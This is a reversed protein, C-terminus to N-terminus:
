ANAGTKSTPFNLLKNILEDLLKYDSILQELATNYRVPNNSKYSHLDDIKPIHQIYNKYEDIAADDSKTNCSLYYQKQANEIIVYIKVKFFLVYPRDLNDEAVKVYDRYSLFSLDAGYDNEKSLNLVEQKKAVEISQADQMDCFNSLKSTAYNIVFALIEKQTRLSNCKLCLEYLKQEDTSIDRMFSHSPTANKIADVAIKTQYLEADIRDVKAQYKQMVIGFKHIFIDEYERQVDRWVESPLKEIYLIKCLAIHYDKQETSAVNRPKITRIVANLLETDANEVEDLVHNYYLQGLDEMTETVFIRNDMWGYLEKSIYTFINDCINQREEPTMEFCGRAKKM